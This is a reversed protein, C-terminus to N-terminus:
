GCDTASPAQTGLMRHVRDNGASAVVHLRGNKAREPYVRSGGGNADISQRKPVSLIVDLAAGAVIHVIVVCGIAASETADREQPYGVRIASIEAALAV